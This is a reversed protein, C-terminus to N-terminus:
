VGHIEKVKENLEEWEKDEDIEIRLNDIKILEYNFNTVFMPNIRCIDRRDRCWVIVNKYKGRRNKYVSMKIGPMEVGLEEVIDKLIERDEATVELLIMGCDCRDAISKAGRLLNQDLVKADKYSGNLQTGSLIFIDYKNCIDKMKVSIMFLINDERLNQVKTKSSVESLIKLSSHIYDHFVYRVGYENIEFKIVNEIDQLSFDPLEKIYIPSNELLRAAYEVREWEGEYYEGNLIHEEDVASLFAIMMTQIEELEQETTNYAVPEKTGNKVWERKDEDYIEDCGIFCADAAMTRTNHTVIYDNTLFLHENNNVYFCTMEEKIGLNKISIIPNFLNTEKRKGNNYWDIILEKKRKLRFLKIKDEPRGTLEIYYCINTDKHSDIGVSTKFGLSRALKIFDDRLYKSITCFRVRGKEDVTGDSDLLGNLLDLRQSIDGELYEVPIYKGESKVNWLEPYDKLAEEVWINKHLDNKKWSFAWSYNFGSNKKVNWDMENAINYPLEEDESSYSLAKQNKNYRFSGDGLLLGFSYPKIYYDKTDYKVANQMPVLIKYGSGKKYLEEKSLYELTNTFFKRSEKANKKQSRTCYSWLHEKCCKSKRGDKFEIEWVEKKGQPYVGLVETPNGFADFLFDGVKIDKVEKDGNPTPIITSDPLAKGAGTSGSRLYFKKFRAGRHIRNIIDGYLPYGVDPTNKLRNVLVLAGKGAKTVAREDSNNIYKDRIQDIKRDIIDGIEEIPTNDLWEEQKQKKKSDLINDPDYLWSLDMGANSNYCRLLTMKKMRSYYYDFAAIQTSESIQQLYEAGHNDKYVAYRKPKGELYDEINNIGIETAGLAHLDFIASFLVKHFRDPFDEENFHYKYDNDLIKPNNYISGIVQIISAVDVYKSSM